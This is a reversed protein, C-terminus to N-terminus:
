RKQKKISRDEIAVERNHRSIQVSTDFKNNQSTLSKLFILQTEYIWASKTKTMFISNDVWKMRRHVYEFSMKWFSNKLVLNLFKEQCNILQQEGLIQDMTQKDKCPM